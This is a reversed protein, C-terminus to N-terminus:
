LLREPVFIKRTIPRIVVCLEPRIAVYTEPRIVVEEQLDWIFGLGRNQSRNGVRSGATTERQASTVVGGGM